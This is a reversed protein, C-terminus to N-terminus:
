FKRGTKEMDPFSQICCPGWRAGFPAALVCTVWVQTWDKGHRSFVPYLLPGMPCWIPCRTRMHGLSADLRKWTPFLSSVVPAGDPVLHPLSYAHSGFKRGTKEMDPFSQICCPGWRAGFPAALVCTVWVQTWDKGHRSFVPYLLPGM